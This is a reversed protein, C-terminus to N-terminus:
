PRRLIDTKRVTGEIVLKLLHPHQLFLGLRRFIKFPARSRFHRYLKEYTQQVGQELEQATMLKPVYVANAWGYHTRDKGPLLRNEQKLKDYIKTGPYPTLIYLHAEELDMQKIVELTRNFIRKDDYDFGFIFFGVTVINYKHFKRVVFKYQEIKNQRVAAWELSSPNVTQFGIQVNFCGSQKMRRLLRENGAINMPAQVSWSKKLPAIRDCLEIAYDEDAFLNDDVFFVVRQKLRKLEEYVLKTDRKRYAAWPMNPLYCFNCKNPCGRTAQVTAVLYDENLLDRRPFPVDNMDVPRPDHYIRKLGGQAADKLLEPWVYEAEGIVVADAHELCEEPLLTPHVGGLVVKSGQKRFHEALGYARESTFTTVTIGVLDFRENLPIEEWDNDILKVDHGECLAGIVAIHLPTFKIKELYRYVGGKVFWRPKILLIKM